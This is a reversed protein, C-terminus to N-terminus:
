TGSYSMTRSILVTHVVAAGAAQEHRPRISRRNAKSRCWFPGGAPPGKLTSLPTLILPYVPGTCSRNGRAQEINALQRRFAAKIEQAIKGVPLGGLRWSGCRRVAAEERVQVRHRTFKMLGALWVAISSGHQGASTATTGATASGSVEEFGFDSPLSTARYQTETM